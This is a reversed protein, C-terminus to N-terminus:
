PAVVIKAKMHPHLSCFYDIEAANTFTFEFSEDTDMVKSKFTKDVAVVTHPIDDHNVFTVKTGPKITLTEPSFSFNDITVTAANAVVPTAANSVSQARVIAGGLMVNVAVLATILTLLVRPGGFRRGANRNASM